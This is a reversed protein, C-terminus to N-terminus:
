SAGINLLFTLGSAVTDDQAPVKVTKEHRVTEHHGLGM